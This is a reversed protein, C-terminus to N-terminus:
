YGVLLPDHIENYDYVDGDDKFLFYRTVINGSGDIFSNYYLKGYRIDDNFINTLSYGNGDRRYCRFGMIESNDHVYRDSDDYYRIDESYTDIFNEYELDSLEIRQIYSWGWYSFSRGGKTAVGTLITDFAVVQDIDDAFVRLFTQAINERNDARIEGCSCAYLNLSHIKKPKLQNVTISGDSYTGSWYLHRANNGDKLQIVSSSGHASIVVNRIRYYYKDGYMSTTGGFLGLSSWHLEFSHVDTFNLLCCELGARDYERALALGQNKFDSSALIYIIDPNVTTPRADEADNVGDYDSDPIQPDSVLVGVFEMRGPAVKSMYQEMFAYQSDSDIHGNGSTYVTTGNIRIEINRGDGFRLLQYIVDFEENDPVTDDDSDNKEPDSHYIKGNTGLIGQLEAFDPIGDFDSDLKLASDFASQRTFSAHLDTYTPYKYYQSGTEYAYKWGFDFPGEDGEQLMVFGASFDASEQYYIMDSVYSEIHAIDDDNSLIFLEKRNGVDTAYQKILNSTASFARRYSGYQGLDFNRAYYDVEALLQNIGDSDNKYILQATTKDTTGFYIVCIRDNAKMSTVLKKVTTIAKERSDSSMGSSVNVAVYYDFNEGDTPFSYNVPYVSNWISRDVLVYTSFHNLDLTITNMDVDLVAQEQLVYVGHEEDFWLVALDNESTGGLADEDYHITVHATEFDENCEFAIPSGVRGELVSTYMDKDLMDQITLASDILDGMEMSVTVSSVVNEFEETKSQLIMVNKDDPDSPNKDLLIEDGDIIGDGDSDDSLPDTHYSYIEDYDSIGDDDSDCYYPCTGFGIEEANTLGDLDFDKQGDSFGDNDSDWVTPNYGMTIEVFDTIGDDDTDINLKDTGYMREESDLLGDEDTDRLEEVLDPITTPECTPVSTPANTPCDTITPAPTSTPTIVGEDGSSIENIFDIYDDIGNNDEDVGLRYAPCVCSLSVDEFLLNSNVNLGGGVVSFSLSGHADIRQNQVNSSITYYGDDLCLAAGGVESISRNSSFRLTWDCISDSSLNTLFLGGNFGDNWVSYEQYNLSFSDFDVVKTTTNLLYFEPLMNVTSEELSFATMGFIVTEGAAVDQNWGANQITYTGFGNEEFVCANWIGEISYPLNFTLFWNRITEDGTNTIEFRLNAYSGWCSDISAQVTYELGETVSYYEPNTSKEARMTRPLFSVVVALSLISSLFKPFRCM